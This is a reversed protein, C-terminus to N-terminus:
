MTSKQASISSRTEWDKCLLSFLSYWKQLACLLCIIYTLFNIASSWVILMHLEGGFWHPLTVASYDGGSLFVLSVINAFQPIITILFWGAYLVGQKTVQITKERNREGGPGQNFRDMRRESSYVFKNADCCYVFLIGIHSICILSIGM